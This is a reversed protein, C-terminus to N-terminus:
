GRTKLIAGPLLKNDAVQSAWNSGTSIASTNPNASGGWTCGRLGLTISYEGQYRAALNERGTVPDILLAEPESTDVSAANAFLALTSYADQASSVGQSEVLAPSDTVLVPVGFTKPTGDMIRAGNARYVADAIQDKILDRYVASHMVLLRIDGFKDGVKFIADVIGESTIDAATDDEELAAVADLKGELAYLATNLSDQMSAVAAQEGLVRAMVDYSADGAIAKRIDTLNKVVPGIRRDLKVRRFEDSTLDLDSVTSDSTSDRRAILDATVDWFGEDIYNATHFEAGMVLAGNSAGNFGEVNQQITEVFGAYAQEVPFFLNGAAM